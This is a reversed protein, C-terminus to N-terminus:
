RRSLVQLTQCIGGGCCPIGASKRLMFEWLRKSSQFFATLIELSDKVFYPIGERYAQISDGNLIEGSYFAMLAAFSFSPPKPSNEMNIWMIWFQPFPRTQWKSVSNLSISLLQHDIYPNKFRDIVSAIFEELEGKQFPCNIPVVEEELFKLMFKLILPDNVCDRVNDFGQLYAAPVM